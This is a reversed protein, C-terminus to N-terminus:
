PPIQFPRDFIIGGAVASVAFHLLFLSHEFAKDRADDIDADNDPKERQAGDIDAKEADQDIRKGEDARVLHHVGERVRPRTRVSLDDGGDHGHANRLFNGDVGVGDQKRGGKIKQFKQLLPRPVAAQDRETEQKRQHQQAQQHCVM